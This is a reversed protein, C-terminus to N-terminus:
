SIALSVCVLPLPSPHLPGGASRAHPTRPREPVRYRVSCPRRPRSRPRLAFRLASALSLCPFPPQIGSRAATLSGSRTPGCRTGSAPPPLAASMPSPAGTRSPAPTLPQFLPARPPSALRPTRPVVPILVTVGPVSQSPLLSPSPFPPSPSRFPAPRLALADWQCPPNLIPSKRNKLL